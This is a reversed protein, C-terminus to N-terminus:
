RRRGGGARAGGGRFSGTGRTGSGGRYTSYDKTRQTGESRARSDRNLQDITSRDTASRDATGPTPQQRTTARETPRPVEPQRETNSWNGNDYKQWTGDQRRYVNGDNGAYV